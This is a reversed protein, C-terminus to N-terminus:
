KSCPKNAKPTPNRKSKDALNKIQCAKSGKIGIGLESFKSLVINYKSILRFSISALCFVFAGYVVYALIFILIDNFNM